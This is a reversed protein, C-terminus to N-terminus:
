VLLQRRRHDFLREGIVQPCNTYQRFHERGLRLQRRDQYRAEFNHRAEIDGVTLPKSLLYGQFTNCGMAALVHLQEETEDRQEEPDADPRALDRPAGQSARVM